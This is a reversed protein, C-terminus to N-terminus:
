AVTDGGMEGSLERSTTGRARLGEAEVETIGGGNKYEGNLARKVGNVGNLKKEVKVAVGNKSALYSDLAKNAAEVVNRLARATEDEEEEVRTRTGNMGLLERIHANLFMGRLQEEGMDRAGSIRGKCEASGCFCDFPQAMSYETSPYFFTLEEGAKLGKPGALVVLNTTDFLLSPDCSHNIYLLDSNLNLHADVGCQVTAYTPSPAPTCPPFDLKAFLGFPPLNILSLSKTTFSTDTAYLVQQIAPHSPQTWHPTVHSM